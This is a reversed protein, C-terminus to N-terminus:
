GNEMTIASVFTDPNVGYVAYNRNTNSFSALSGGNFAVAVPSSINAAEYFLHFGFQEVHGNFQAVITSKFREIVRQYERSCPEHIEDIGSPVHALIHVKEGAQEAQLLTDHLWQFQQRIQEVDYLVWFNYIYCLNNNLAIIRLGPRVLTTYYGGNTFSEISAPSM